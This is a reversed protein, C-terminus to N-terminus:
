FVLFRIYTHIEKDTFMYIACAQTLEFDLKDFGFLLPSNSEPHGHIPVLEPLISILFRYYKDYKLSGCFGLNEMLDFINTFSRIDVYIMNRIDARLNM